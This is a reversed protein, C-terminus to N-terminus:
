KWTSRHIEVYTLNHLDIHFCLYANDRNRETNLVFGTSNLCKISTIHAIFLFRSTFGFLYNSLIFSTNLCNNVICLSINIFARSLYTYVSSYTQAHTPTVWHSNMIM